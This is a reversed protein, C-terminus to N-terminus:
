SEGLLATAESGAITIADNRLEALIPPEEKRLRPLEEKGVEAIRAPNGTWRQVQRALLDLQERWSPDEREVQKPRVVFLDIDSGTDGEGRAFSGFLSVHVATIEWSDVARRLRDFLESRMHVLLDVAPAALHERNLTFLLARGAEERDVVGHDALRNLAILVVSHSTRGMLRAIGRGTMPRTTGALV